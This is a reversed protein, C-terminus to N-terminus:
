WLVSVRGVVVYWTLLVWKPSGSSGYCRLHQTLSLEVDVSSCQRRLLEHQDHGSRSTGRAPRTLREATKGVVHYLGKPYSVSNGSCSMALGADCTMMM